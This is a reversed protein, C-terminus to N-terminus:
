TGPNFRPEVSHIILCSLTSSVGHLNEGTGIMSPPVELLVQNLFHLVPTVIHFIDAGM